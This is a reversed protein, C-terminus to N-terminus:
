RTLNQSIESLNNEVLFFKPPKLILKLQRNYKFQSLSSNLLMLLKIKQIETPAVAINLFYIVVFFLIM